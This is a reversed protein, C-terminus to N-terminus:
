RVTSCLVFVIFLRFLMWALKTAQQPKYQYYMKYSIIGMCVISGIAGVLRFEAAYPWSEMRFLTGELGFSLVIGICYAFVRSLVGKTRLVLIPIFFYVEAIFMLGVVMLVSANPLAKVKFYIAILLIVVAFIEIGTGIKQGVSAKTPVTEHVSLADDLLDDSM